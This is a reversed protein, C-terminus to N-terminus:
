QKKQRLLLLVQSEGEDSKEEDGTTAVTVPKAPTPKKKKTAPPAPPPDSNEDEDEEVKKPAPKKKSKLINLVPASVIDDSTERKLMGLMRELPDSDSEIFKWASRETPSFNKKVTQFATQNLTNDTDEVLIKDAQPTMMTNLWHCFKLSVDVEKAFALLSESGRSANSFIATTVANLKQRVETRDPKCAFIKIYIEKILTAWAATESFIKEAPSSKEEEETQEEAALKEAPSFNKM